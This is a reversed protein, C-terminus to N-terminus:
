GYRLMEGTKGLLSDKIPVIELTDNIKTRNAREVEYQWVKRRDM